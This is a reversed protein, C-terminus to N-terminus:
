NAVKRWSEFVPNERLAERVSQEVECRISELAQDIAKLLDGATCDSQVVGRGFVNVSAVCRYQKATSELHVRVRPIWARLDGLSQTVSRDVFQRARQSLESESAKIDVFM